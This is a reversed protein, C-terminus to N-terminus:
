EWEALEERLMAYRRLIEQRKWQLLLFSGTFITGIVLFIAGLLLKEHSEPQARLVHVLVAITNVAFSTFGLFLFVRVRLAIGAVAAAASLLAAALPYILSEEFDVVNYFTTTGLLVLGCGFRLSQLRRPDIEDKSNTVIIVDFFGLGNKGFRDVLMFLDELIGFRHNFDVLKSVRRDVEDTTRPGGSFFVPINVPIQGLAHFGVEIGCSDADGIGLLVNVKM